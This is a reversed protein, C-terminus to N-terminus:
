DVQEVTPPFGPGYTVCKLGSPFYKAQSSSEIHFCFGAASQPVNLATTSPVNRMREIIWELGRELM